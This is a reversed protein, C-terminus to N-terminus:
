NQTKPKRRDTGFHKAEPIEAKSPFPINQKRFKYILIGYGVGAPDDTRAMQFAMFRGNTAVVPNSAKGGIYDNFFTLREFDNGTGDLKLKWIDINGSGHGGLWACQRDSEVCTYKGDPFIGEVENYTGPAKSFNIVQLTILDIGMVSANNGPEYCTFTLKTDNDYFDNPEVTCNSDPSEFVVKKNVLKPTTGSLDVDAMVIRSAGAPIESVQDHLEAFSIKMSIKSVAAGESMKQGLKVPKSGRGLYWLENDRSRSIRIDEFHDPGILLYDGNSLHMVRLFAAGPIGCTLCRIRRTKLNIVMADGFSKDMFVVQRNDPSIDAREGFWTLRESNSPLATAPDGKIRSVVGNGGSVTIQGNGKGPKSTQGATKQHFVVVLLVMILLLCCKRIVISATGSKNLSACFSKFEESIKNINKTLFIDSHIMLKL